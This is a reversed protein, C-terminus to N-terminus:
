DNQSNWIDIQGKLFSLTSQSASIDRDAWTFSKALQARLAEQKGAIATLREAIEVKAKSYRSVSGGLSGPDGSNGITRALKDLTSYVGYLGTTFMAGTAAPSAALAKNLRADDYGFTGDRNLMLGLDGLTRPEGPVANPMVVTSALSSISRKLARAGTDNGLEGGLPDASENLQTAVENLASVLDSMLTSIGQQQSTFTIQTPAGANTGTLTLSMGGALGAVQNTTSTIDAGDLIFAADRAAQKLQGTDAAPSWDLYDITGPAATGGSASPGTGTLTFGNGAGEAGKLVLQAGNPGTAVYATVGSGSGTIKGALTALTDQATVTIAVPTRSADASFAAGQVTGFQLTLTGEGVLAGASAYARSALTQTAALQTVELSFSGRPTSGPAVGVSAVGPQAVTGEPSLEGGRLRDGLATALQSLQSKLASAASIRTEMLESRKELEAVQAAFRAKSLDTALKMMDVGSGGGLAGVISSTSSDM